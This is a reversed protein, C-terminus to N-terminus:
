LGLEIEGEPMTGAVMELAYLYEGSPFYSPCDETTCPTMRLRDVFRGDATFFAIDLELLTDKMWFGGTTESQFVFLMGNLDGLDEIRMLGRGRLDPTDAVAVLLDEGALAITRTPFDSLATPIVPLSTTPTPEPEPLVEVEDITAEVAATEPPETTTSVDEATGCASAVMALLVVSRRIM